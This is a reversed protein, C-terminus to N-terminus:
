VEGVKFRLKTVKFQPAIREVAALLARQQFTLEQLTASDQVIVELVGRNFKGPRSRGALEGAAQRWLAVWEQAIQVQAYGRRALLRSLVEGIPQPARKKETRVFGSLRRGDDDRSRAM